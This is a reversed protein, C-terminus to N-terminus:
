FYVIASDHAMISNIITNDNFIYLATCTINGHNRYLKFAMYQIGSNSFWQGILLSVLNMHLQKTVKDEQHIHALLVKTQIIIIRIDKENEFILKLVDM